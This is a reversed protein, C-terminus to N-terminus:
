CLKWSRKSEWRKCVLVGDEHYSYHSNMEDKKRPINEFTASDKFYFISGRYAIEQAESM